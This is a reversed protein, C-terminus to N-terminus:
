CSCTLTFSTRALSDAYLEDMTRVLFVPMDGNVSWVAQEIERVFSATGARESRIM